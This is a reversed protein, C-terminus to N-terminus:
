CSGLDVKKRISDSFLYQDILSVATLSVLRYIVSILIM